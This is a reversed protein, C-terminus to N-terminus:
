SCARAAVVAAPACPPARSRRPRWRCSSASPVPRRPSRDPAPRDSRPARSCGDAPRSRSRRRRGARPAAPVHPAAERRWRRAGPRFRAGSLVVMTRATARISPPVIVSSPGVVAPGASAARRDQCWPRPAAPRPSTPCPRRVRRWPRRSRAASAGAVQRVAGALSSRRMSLAALRRPPAPGGRRPARGRDGRHQGVRRRRRHTFPPNIM